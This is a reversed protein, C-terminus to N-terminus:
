FSFDFGSLPNKKKQEKEYKERASEFGKRQRDKAEQKRLKEPAMTQESYDSYNSKVQDEINFIKEPKNPASGKKNTEVPAVDKKKKNFKMNSIADGMTKSFSEVAENAADNNYVAYPNYGGQEYASDGGGQPVISRQLHFPSSTNKKIIDM